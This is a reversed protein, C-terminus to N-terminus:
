PISIYFSFFSLVSSCLPVFFERSCSKNTRFIRCCRSSSRYSPKPLESEVRNPTPFALRLSEVSTVHSARAEGFTCRPRRRERPFSNAGSHENTSFVNSGFPPAIRREKHWLSLSLPTDMEYENPFFNVRRHFVVALTWTLKDIEVNSRNM